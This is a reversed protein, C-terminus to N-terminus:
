FSRGFAPDPRHYCGQPSGASQKDFYPHATKRAFRSSIGEASYRLRWGFTEWLPTVEYRWIFLRFRGDQSLEHPDRALGPQPAVIEEIDRLLGALRQAHAPVCFAGNGGTVTYGEARLDEALDKEMQDAAEFPM